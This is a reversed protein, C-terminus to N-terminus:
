LNSHKCNVLTHLINKKKLTYTTHVWLIRKPIFFIQPFLPCQLAERKFARRHQLERQWCSIVCCKRKGTREQWIKVSALYGNAGTKKCETMCKFHTVRLPIPDFGVDAMNGARSHRQMQGGQIWRQGGQWLLLTFTSSFVFCWGYEPFVVFGQWFPRIFSRCPSLLKKAHRCDTFRESSLNSNWGHSKSLVTSRKWALPSM